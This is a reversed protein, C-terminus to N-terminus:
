YFYLIKGSRMTGVKACIAQDEDDSGISISLLTPTCESKVGSDEKTKM